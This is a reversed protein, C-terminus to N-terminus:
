ETKLSKVPNTLAASIAKYGVSLWVVVVSLLIAYVFIDWGLPIRYQFGLLWHHMLYYGLPAAILFSVGILLTFEKSFLYVIHQVSAGLVKRIGVEKTKQVVLFSVLGYMGMCSIFIALLTFIRFLKGTIVEANYFRGVMEDFFVPEFIHAPLNATYLKRLGEMASEMRAPDLKIALMNLENGRSTILMPHVAEKLSANNYDRLVGVVPILPWSTDGLRIRKGIITVPDNFGLVKATKENVVVETKATDTLRPFRGAALKLQFTNLYDSDANWYSVEFDEPHTNNGFTLYSSRQWDISPPNDCQTVSLVGPVQKMENKLYRYVSTGEARWPLDLLVIAKRDFGMPQERFFKTQRNVVLTGIILLQAIVFQAVILSRRLSIGGAARSQLKNKMAAVPNFGSLILGPYAGALFTTLIGLLLLFLLTSGDLMRIAVPKSLLQKLSPLALEALVCGLIMALLVLLATEALFRIFLQSRSSGLTKRVGVEKARTLSQVTSLNIFNICAVALLFLGILGMAWLEKYSWGEGGYRAFKADFHMDRLSQFYSSDRTSSNAFLPTYHRAVFDPLRAEMSAITQHKGLLFFCQSSTTFSDWSRPDTLERAWRDRVTAYSLVLQLSIDTNAPPDSMIGTIRYPQRGDGELIVKGMADEWRGFWREALSRSIAATFPDHLAAGPSGAIWPFDFIEFLEPEAFYVDAVRFKKEEVGAQGAVAFQMRRERFVASVKEAQPFEQRLAAPLPRPACGDYEVHGNRFTETSVVRYIRDSKSHFTDISLEHRILVFILLSAAFGVALGTVNLVTFMKRNRLSRIITKLHIM